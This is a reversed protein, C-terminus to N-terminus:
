PLVISRGAMIKKQASNAGVTFKASDLTQLEEGDRGLATWASEM